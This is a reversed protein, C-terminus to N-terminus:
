IYYFEEFVKRYLNIAARAENHPLVFGSEHAIQNRVKHAEWAENLTQFDGPVVRKLKEGISEGRYGMGNLIDDLIIDAELIAQKWDNQNPSEIHRVVNEWRHALAVNGGSDEQFAPETKTDYMLKEKNRIHKIQEVCYIIVILFFLSIPFSIGILTGLVTKSGSFLTPYWEIFRDFVSELFNVVDVTPTSVIIPQSIPDVSPDM